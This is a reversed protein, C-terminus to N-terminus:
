LDVSYHSQYYNTNLESQKDPSKFLKTQGELIPLEESSGASGIYMVISFVFFLIALINKLRQSDATKFNFQYHHPELIEIYKM